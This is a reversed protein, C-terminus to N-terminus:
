LFTENNGIDAVEFTKLQTDLAKLVVARTESQRWKSLLGFDLTAKVIKNAQTANLGALTEDNTVADAEGGELAIKLVGSDLMVKITPIPKMADWVENEIANIGPKIIVNKPQLASKIVINSVGTVNNGTNNIFIM